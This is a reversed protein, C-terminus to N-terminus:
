RTLPSSPNRSLLRAGPCSLYFCLSCFTVVSLCSSGPCTFLELQGSAPAPTPTVPLSSLGGSLSNLVQASPLLLSSCLRCRASGSYRIGLPSVAAALPQGTGRRASGPPRSLSAPLPRSSRSQPQAGHALPSAARPIFNDWGTGPRAGTARSLLWAQTHSAHGLPNVGNHSSEQSQRGVHCQRITSPYCRLDSPVPSSPPRVSSFLLSSRVPLGPSSAFPHPVHLGM